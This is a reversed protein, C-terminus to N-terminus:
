CLSFFYLNSINSNTVTTFLVDILECLRIHHIHYGKTINIKVAFLALLDQIHIGVCLTEAIEALKKFFIGVMKICHSGTHGVMDMEKYGHHSQLILLVNIQLLGHDTGELFRFKQHFHCTAVRIHGCLHAVLTVGLRVIELELSPHLSTDDLVDCGNGSVHVIATTPMSIVWVHNLHWFSFFNGLVHVIVCPVTAYSVM